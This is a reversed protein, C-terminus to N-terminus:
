LLRLSRILKPSKHLKYLPPPHTCFPRMASSLHSPLLLTPYLEIPDSQGSTTRLVDGLVIKTWGRASLRSLPLHSHSVRVRAM